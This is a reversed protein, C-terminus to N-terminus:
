RLPKLRELLKDYDAEPIQTWARETINWWACSGTYRDARLAVALGNNVGFYFSYHGLASYTLATGIIAGFCLTITYKAIPHMSPTYRSRSPTDLIPNSLICLIHLIRATAACSLSKGLAFAVM